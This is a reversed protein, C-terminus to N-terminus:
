RRGNIKVGRWRIINPTEKNVVTLGSPNYLFKGKSDALVFHRNGNAITYHYRGDFHEVMNELYGSVEATLYPITGYKEFVEKLLLDSNNVSTTNSIISVDQNNHRFTKERAMYYIDKIDEKTFVMGLEMQAIILLTMFYCGFYWINNIPEQKENATGRNVTRLTPVKKGNDIHWFLENDDYKFEGEEDKEIEFLDNTINTQWLYTPPKPNDYCTKNGIKRREEEEEAAKEELKRAVFAEFDSRIEARSVSSILPVNVGRSDTVTSNVAEDNLKLISSLVDREGGWLNLRGETTLLLSSGSNAQNRTLGRTTTNKESGSKLSINGDKTIMLAGNANSLEIQGDETLVLRAKGNILEIKGEETLA